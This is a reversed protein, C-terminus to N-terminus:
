KKEEGEKKEEEGEKPADTSARKRQVPKEAEITPIVVSNSPKLAAHLRGDEVQWKEIWQLVLTDKRDMTKRITELLAEKM